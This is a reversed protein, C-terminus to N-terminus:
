GRVDAANLGLARVVGWDIAIHGQADLRRGLGYCDDYGWLTWGIGYREFAARVDQFWHLRDAPPAHKCYVGFEGALIPVGYTKSWHAARAIL